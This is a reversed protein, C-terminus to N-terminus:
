GTAGTVAVVDMIVLVPHNQM